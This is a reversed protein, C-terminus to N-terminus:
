SEKLVSALGGVGSENSPATITLPQTRQSKLEEKIDVMIIALPIPPQNEDENTLM